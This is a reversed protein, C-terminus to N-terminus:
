LNDPRDGPHEGTYDMNWYEAGCEPCIVFDDDFFQILTGCYDCPMNDETIDISVCLTECPPTDAIRQLV